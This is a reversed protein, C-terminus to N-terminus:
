AAKKMSSVNTLDVDSMAQEFLDRQALNAEYVQAVKDRAKAIVLSKLAAKTTECAAALEAIRKEYAEAADIKANRLLLLEEVASLVDTRSSM